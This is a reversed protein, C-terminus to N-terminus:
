KIRILKGNCKGCRYRDPNKVMNSIRSRKWERSCSSCRLIYKFRDKEIDELGFSKMTSLRSIKYKPTNSILLGPLPLGNDAM